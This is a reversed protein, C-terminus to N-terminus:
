LGWMPHGKDSWEDPEPLYWAPWFNRCQEKRHRSLNISMERNRPCTHRGWVGRAALEHSSPIHEACVTGWRLRAALKDPVRLCLHLQSSQYRKEPSPRRGM